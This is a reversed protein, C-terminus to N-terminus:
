RRVADHRARHKALSAFDRAITPLADIQKNSIITAVTSQTEVPMGGIVTVEESVGGVSMTLKVTLDQGVALQLAQKVTRFGTLAASIEYDGPRLNTM